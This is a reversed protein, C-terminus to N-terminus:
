FEVMSIITCGLTRGGDFGGPLCSLLMDSCSLLDRGDPRHHKLLWTKAKVDLTRFLAKNGISFIRRVSPLSDMPLQQLCFPPPEKCQMTVSGLCVVWCQGGHERCSKLALHSAQIARLTFSEVLGLVLHLLAVCARFGPSLGEVDFRCVSSTKRGWCTRCCDNVSSCLFLVFNWCDHHQAVILSGIHM